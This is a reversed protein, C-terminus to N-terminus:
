DAYSARETRTLQEMRELYESRTAAPRHHEVVQRAKAAGDALLDIATLALAKAPAVYALAPDTVRFSASHNDGDCGGHTPHLVPMVQSLDGADTSAAVFPIERWNEAGVLAIANERFVAAMTRDLNLPLTGLITTIEVTAGIAMAAGRLARDVKRDADLMAEYTAGRVYTEIRVDSPVVNITTGGQTVIPHIRIHDEDRFTERLLGIAQLALSAANLANVGLHPSAAAHSARGLFRIRKAIIGNYTWGVAMPPTGPRGSAHVMMAMDVDDFHGLRILEAKGPRAPQKGGELDLYEEAPVAFLVVDGDLLAGANALALGRAVGVLHAIQANHGCAHAAGTSPDAQPHDPVRLGDLEGMVCVTPGPRRGKLRTKIGTGALGEELEFGLRRLEEAVIAATRHEAYALEPHAFIDDGIRTIDAASQDIAAAVTSKLDAIENV